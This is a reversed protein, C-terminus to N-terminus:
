PPFSFSWGVASRHSWVCLLFAWFPNWLCSALCRRLDSWSCGPDWGDTGKACSIIGLDPLAPPNPHPSSTKVWTLQGRRPNNWYSREVFGVKTPADVVAGQNVLVEAVNIRDEQAALHLPTLGSQLDCAAFWNQAPPDAQFCWPRLKIGLLAPGRRRLKVLPWCFICTHHEAGMEVVNHGIVRSFVSFLFLHHLLLDTAMSWLSLVITQTPTFYLTHYSRAPAACSSWSGKGWPKNMRFM